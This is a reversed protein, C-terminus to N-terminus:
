NQYEVVQGQKSWITSSGNQSASRRMLNPKLREYGLGVIVRLKTAM